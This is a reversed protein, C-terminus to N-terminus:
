QGVLSFLEGPKADRGQLYMGLAFFAGDRGVRASAAFGERHWLSSSNVATSQRKRDVPSDPIWTPRCPARGPNARAGAGLSEM